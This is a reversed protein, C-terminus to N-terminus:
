WFGRDNQGSFDRAPNEGVLELTVDQEGDM